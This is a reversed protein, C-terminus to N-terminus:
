KTVYLLISILVTAGILIAFMLDFSKPHEKKEFSAVILSYKSGFIFVFYNAVAVFFYTILFKIALDKYTITRDLAYENFLTYVAFLWITVLASLMGLTSNSVNTFRINEFGKFIKFFIFKYFNVLM